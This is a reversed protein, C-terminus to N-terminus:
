QHMQPGKDKWAGQLNIVNSVFCHNWMLSEAECCKSFAFYVLSGICFWNAPSLPHLIGLVEETRLRWSNHGPEHLDMYITKITISIMHIIPATGDALLSKGTRHNWHTTRICSWATTGTKKAWWMVLFDQTTSTRKQTERMSRSLVCKSSWGYLTSPYALLLKNNCTFALIILILSFFGTQKMSSKRVCDSSGLEGKIGVAIQYCCVNMFLALYLYSVSTM